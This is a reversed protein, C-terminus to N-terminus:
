HIKYNNYLDELTTFYSDKSPDAWRFGKLFLREDVKHDPIQKMQYDVPLFSEPKLFELHGSFNTAIIPLGSAAAEVIPLGYGEGRTLAIYGKVCETKYM